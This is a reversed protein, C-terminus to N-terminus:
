AIDKVDFHKFTTASAGCLDCSSGVDSLKYTDGCKKCVAYIPYLANENNNNIASIAESYFDSHKKEAIKAWEFSILAGNAGEQVAEEMFEPYMTNFEYDEGSKAKILNDASGMINTEGTQPIFDSVGLKALESLHTTAHISEAYSTAALMNAIHLFGESQAKISFKAYDTCAKTEGTAAAKLNEITATKPSVCSFTLAAALALYITKM